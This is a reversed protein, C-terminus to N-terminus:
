RCRGDDGGIIKGTVADIRYLMRHHFGLEMLKEEGADDALRFDIVWALRFDQSKWIPVLRGFITNPYVIQLEAKRLKYYKYNNKWIDSGFLSAARHWGKAIAEERSIKVETLCPKGGYVKSYGLFEGDVAMIEVRADDDEYPYGGTRRTWFGRWIGRESDLAMKDFVMDAPLGIQAAIQLVLSRAKEEPLFPPWHRPIRNDSPIGYKKMVRRELEPNNYSRVEKTGCDVDVYIQHDNEGGFVVERERNNKLLEILLGLDKKMVWPEGTYPVDMRSCFAKAAAIAEGDPLCGNGTPLVMLIAWVFALIVPVIIYCAALLGLVVLLRKLLKALTWKETLADKRSQKRFIMCADGVIEEPGSGEV